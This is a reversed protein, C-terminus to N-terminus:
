KTLSLESCGINRLKTRYNAMKYKLSIKWGYYGSVSGKEKLCPHKQVLAAAVEDLDASSPYAKFKIIESALGDLIDSKLKTNPSLVTGDTKYALQDKQLQMEADFNFQPIPFHEPWTQSRVSSASESTSNASSQSSSMIETDFSSVSSTENLDSVSSSSSISSPLFIVKLTFRDHIDSTSSLNVFDNFDSDKYKLRFDEFVRLQTQIERKLDNLSEPIGNPLNLRECNNEGFIVLLKAPTGMTVIEESQELIQLDHLLPRLIKEFGYTKVDETTCLVALYISSLTSQFMSPVNGLVWYIACLKHKKRSTGLPNCIEFDDVYLCLSIRLDDSFLDNPKFYLGDQVSRHQHVDGLQQSSHSEVMKDLLDNQCLLNQISQLIPVYQFTKNGKTELVYEVPDVVKFNERYYQKRKFASALLGGHKIAALLPNTASLSTVLDKVVSADDIKHKQLTDITRHSLPCSADSLLYHLDQLLENVASGPVHYHNELKLLM